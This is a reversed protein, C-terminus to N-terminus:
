LKREELTEIINKWLKSKEALLCFNGICYLGKKARSLAVCIRNSIKLFGIQGEENSRVFSILIIDNEEGQYNDVVTFKIGQLIEKLPSKKMEFFQGSYTTLVTIQSPEYGQLILYM